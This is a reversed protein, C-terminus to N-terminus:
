PQEDSVRRRGWMAQRRRKYFLYLSVDLALFNVKFLCLGTDRLHSFLQLLQSILNCLRLYTNRPNPWSSTIGWENTTGRGQQSPLM